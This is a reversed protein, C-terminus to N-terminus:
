QILTKVKPLVGETKPVNPCLVEAVKEAAEREAEKDRHMYLMTTDLSTHGLVSQVLEVPVGRNGAITRFTHRLSHWGFHRIGLRGLVPEVQGRFLNRDHLATGAQSSFLLESDARRDRLFGELARVVFSALPVRREGRKTKPSGMVGRYIARRVYLVGGALDVDSVHLALMEGIRLGTAVGLLVITRSPEPLAELLAQIEEASLVHVERRREMVPLKIGSAPNESVMGWSLATSYLASLFNRFHALTQPSYGASQKLTVFRQIEVRQIEALKRAGFAPVLHVQFLSRYLKQTSM